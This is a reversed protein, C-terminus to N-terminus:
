KLLAQHFCTDHLHSMLSNPRSVRAEGDVGIQWDVLPEILYVDTLVKQAIAKDQSQSTSLATCNEDVNSVRSINAELKPLDLYIGVDAGVDLENFQFGIQM